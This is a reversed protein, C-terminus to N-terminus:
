GEPLQSSLYDITEQKGEPEDHGICYLDFDLSRIFALYKKLRNPDYRGNNEYYDECDADGVFLAKEEPAYILLADRSHPSDMPILRLRVGGLDMERERDLGQDVTKVSIMGLDPYEKRICENCFAIDEGTEERKRMTETTWSWRSVKELKEKTLQSAMSVGSIYKLGFTHDWHWHTILTYSPLPLGEERLAGYFEEVHRRSQGADIAASKLDGRVYYLNPQDTESQGPLRYIRDTLKILVGM